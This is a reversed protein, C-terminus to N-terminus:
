FYLIERKGFMFLSSNKKNFKMSEGNNENFTCLDQRKGSIWFYINLIWPSSISAGAEWGGGSDIKHIKGYRGFSVSYFLALM